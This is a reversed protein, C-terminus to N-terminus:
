RHTCECFLSLFFFFSLEKKADEVGIIAGEEHRESTECTLRRVEAGQETEETGVTVCWKQRRASAYMAGAAVLNSTCSGRM